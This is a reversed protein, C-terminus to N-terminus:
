FDENDEGDDADLDEAELEDDGGYAVLSLVMLSNLGASVGAKGKFNWEYPRISAKIESGNGILQSGDM